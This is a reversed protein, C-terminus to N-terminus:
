GDNHVEASGQLGETGVGKLENCAACAPLGRTGSSDDHRVRYGCRTAQRGADFRHYVGRGAASALVLPADMALGFIHTGM